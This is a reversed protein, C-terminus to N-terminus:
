KKVRFIPNGKRDFGSIKSNLFTSVARRQDESNETLNDLYESVSEACQKKEAETAADSREVCEKYLEAAKAKVATVSKDSM